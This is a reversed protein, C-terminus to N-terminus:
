KEGAVPVCYTYASKTLQYVNHTTSGVGVAQEAATRCADLTSFKPSLEVAGTMSSGWGFLVLLWYAPTM